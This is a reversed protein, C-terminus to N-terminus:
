KALEKIKNKAEELTLFVNEPEGGIDHSFGTTKKEDVTQCLYDIEDKTDYALFLGPKGDETRGSTTRYNYPTITKAISMIEICEIRYDWVEGSQVTGLGACSWCTVQELKQNKIIEVLGLGKCTSCTDYKYRSTDKYVAYVRDGVKFKTEMKM